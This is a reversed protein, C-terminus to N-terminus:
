NPPLALTLTGNWPAPTSAGGASTTNRMLRAETPVARTTSRVQALWQALAEPPVDKLTIAARDGTTSMQTGASLQQGLSRWLVPLTENGTPRPIDKLHLAQAQLAQMQQLQEDLAAHRAPSARLQALAPALLLWWLLALGLVTAAALVLTQERPALSAWHTRLAAAMARPPPMANPNM